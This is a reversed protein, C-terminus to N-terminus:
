TEKQIVRRKGKRRVRSKELFVSFRRDRATATMERDNTIMRPVCPDKNFTCGFATRSIQTSQKPNRM